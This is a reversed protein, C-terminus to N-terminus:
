GGLLSGALVSFCEVLLALPSCSVLSNPAFRDRRFTQEGLVQKCPYTEAYIESELLCRSNCFSFEM